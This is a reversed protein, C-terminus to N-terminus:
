GVPSRLRSADKLHLLVIAKVYVKKTLNENNKGILIWKKKLDKSRDMAPLIRDIINKGESLLIKPHM